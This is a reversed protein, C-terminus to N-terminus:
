YKWSLNLAIFSFNADNYEGSVKGALPGRNQNVSMDGNWMFEYSLGCTLNPTIAYQSGLAMRWTEGMPLPLRGKTVTLPPVTTPLVAPSHGHMPTAINPEWLWM